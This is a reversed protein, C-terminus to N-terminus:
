SLLEIAKKICDGSEPLGKVKPAYYSLFGHPMLKMEYAKANVGNELLRNFFYLGDDKLPCVGALMIRTPPFKALAWDPACIGPSMYPDTSGIMKHPGDKPPYAKAIQFLLTYGLLTDDFANLLSPYFTENSCITCPYVPLIADPVRFKRMIAMLTLSIILNGGASDGTLM